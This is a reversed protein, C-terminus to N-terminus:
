LMTRAVTQQLSGMHSENRHDRYGPPLRIFYTEKALIPNPGFSIAAYELDVGQDMVQSLVRVIRQVQEHTDVAALRHQQLFFSNGSDPDRNKFQDVLVGLTLYPVPIQMRHYLLFHLTGRVQELCWRSTIISSNSPIEITLM